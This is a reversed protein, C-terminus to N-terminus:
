ELSELADWRAYAAELDNSLRQLRQLAANGDAPSQRFLKPDSLAAQLAAQEAELLQITDPL